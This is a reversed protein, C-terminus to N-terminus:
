KMQLNQKEILEAGRVSHGEKLLKRIGAVDVSVEKKTIFYKKPLLTKDPISVSVSKLFSFRVKPSEFKTESNRLLDSTVYSKLWELKKKKTNMRKQLNKIEADFADIDSALNKMYAGINELKEARETKIEDLESMISESVEGTEEDAESYLRDLLEEFRDSIEYLKAM